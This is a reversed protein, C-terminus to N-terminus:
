RDLRSLKVDHVGLRQGPDILKSKVEFPTLQDYKDLEKAAM